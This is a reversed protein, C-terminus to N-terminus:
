RHGPATPERATVYDFKQIHGQLCTIHVLHRVRKDMDYYGIDYVRYDEGGFVPHHDTVAVIGISYSQNLTQIRRFKDQITREEDDTHLAAMKQRYIARDAELNYGSYQRVIVILCACLIVAYIIRWPTIHFTGSQKEM